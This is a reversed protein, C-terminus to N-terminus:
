APVRGPRSVGRSRELTSSAQAHREPQARHPEPGDAEPPPRTTGRPRPESEYRALLSRLIYLHAAYM